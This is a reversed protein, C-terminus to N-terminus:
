IEPEGDDPEGSTLAAVARDGLYVVYVLSGIVGLVRTRRELMALGIATESAGNIRVWKETDEPFVPKSIFEFPRPAVFHALGSATLSVGAGRFALGIPDVAAIFRRVRTLM